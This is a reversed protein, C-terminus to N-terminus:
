YILLIKSNPLFIIQLIKIFNRATESNQSTQDPNKHM